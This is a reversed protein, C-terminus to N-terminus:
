AGAWIYAAVAVLGIATQGIELRGWLRIVERAEHVAEGGILALIRNNLPVIAFYTYPWSSIAFIAGVLYR